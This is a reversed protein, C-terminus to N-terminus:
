LQIFIKTNCIRKILNILSFSFLVELSPPRKPPLLITQITPTIGTCSEKRCGREPIAHMLVEIRSWSQKAHMVLTNSVIRSQNM